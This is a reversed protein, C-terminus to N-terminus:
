IMSGQEPLGIRGAVARGMIGTGPFLDDLIDGPQFNLCDLLWICFRAPKAGCLGKRLAVSEILHDKSTADKTSRKRGGCFIVPEWTYALGVGPKFCSFPKVWALVRSRPYPPPMRFSRRSRLRICLCPGATQTSSSSCACSTSTPRWPIGSGLKLIITNLPAALIRLIPTPSNLKSIRFGLIKTSFIAKEVDPSPTVRPVWLGNCWVFGAPAEPEKKKNM